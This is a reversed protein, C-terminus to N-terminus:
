LWIKAGSDSPSFLCVPWKESNVKFICNSKRITREAIFGVNGEMRRGENWRQIGFDVRVWLVSLALSAKLFVERTRCGNVLM